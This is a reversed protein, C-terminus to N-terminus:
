EIAVSDQSEAWSYQVNEISWVTVGDIESKKAIQDGM